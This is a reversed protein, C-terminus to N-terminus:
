FAYVVESVSFYDNEDRVNLISCGVGSSIECTVCLLYM